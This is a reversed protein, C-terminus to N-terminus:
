FSLPTLPAALTVQCTPDAVRSLGVWDPWGAGAGVLNRKFTDALLYVDDKLLMTNYKTKSKSKAIQYTYSSGSNAQSSSSSGTADM